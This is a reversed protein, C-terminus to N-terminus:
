LRHSYILPCPHVKQSAKFFRDADARDEVGDINPDVNKTLPDITVGTRHSIMGPMAWFANGLGARIAAIVAM